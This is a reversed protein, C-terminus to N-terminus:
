SALLANAQQIIDDLQTPDEKLSTTESSKRAQQTAFACNAIIEASIKKSDNILAYPDPHMCQWLRAGTVGQTNLISATRSLDETTVASCDLESRRYHNLRAPFSDDAATSEEPSVIRTAAVGSGLQLALLLAFDAGRGAASSFKGQWEPQNAPHIRAVSDSQTM